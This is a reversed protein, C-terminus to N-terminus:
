YENKTSTLLKELIDWIDAGSGSECDKSIDAIQWGHKDAFVKWKWFQGEDPYLTVQRHALDQCRDLVSLNNSGGVALWLHLPDAISMAMATKESEVVAVRAFYDDNLMHEGYICQNLEEGSFLGQFVRCRHTWFAGSGKDRHGNPQYKILKGTRIKGKQDIQWFVSAGNYGGVKYRKFCEAVQSEPFISCFYDFLNGSYDETVKLADPSFLIKAKQVPMEKKVIMKQESRPYRFYGCNQERDCRGCMVGDEYAIAEDDGVYPVFRKQGCNPCVEKKSGKRLHYKYTKTM